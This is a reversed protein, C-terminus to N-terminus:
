RGAGSGALAPATPETTARSIKKKLKLAKQFLGQDTRKDGCAALGSGVRQGSLRSRTVTERAPGGGTGLANAAVLREDCDGGRLSLRSRPSAAERGGFRPGLNHGLSAGSTGFGRAEEPGIPLSKRAPPM